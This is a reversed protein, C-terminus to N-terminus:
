FTLLVFSSLLTQFDLSACNWFEMRLSEPVTLSNWRYEPRVRTSLGASVAPHMRMTDQMNGDLLTKMNCLPLLGYEMNQRKTERYERKQRAM